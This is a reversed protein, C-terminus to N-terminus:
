IKGGAALKGRAKESPPHVLGARELLYFYTERDQARLVAQQHALTLARPYGDGLVCQRLLIRHARDLYGEDAVWLPFELRAIEHETAVYCLGM